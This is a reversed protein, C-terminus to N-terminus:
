SVAPGSANAFLSALPNVIPIATAQHHNLTTNTPSQIRLFGSSSNTETTASNVSPQQERSASTSSTTEVSELHTTAARNRKKSRNASNASLNNTLVTTPQQSQAHLPPAPQPTTSRQQKEIHELTHAAPNSMLRALLPKAEPVVPGSPGSNGTSPQDGAKFHGPNM